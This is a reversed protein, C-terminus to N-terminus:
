QHFGWIPRLLKYLPSYEADTATVFSKAKYRKLIPRGARTGGPSLILEKIRQRTQADVRSGISFGRHPWIIKSEFLLALGAKVKAPRKLWWKAPVVAAVGEGRRLCKLAEPFSNIPIVVPVSAPNPFLDFMGLTMLNPSGISCVRKGALKRVAKIRSGQKVIISFNLQGPLKAVAVHHKKLIRWGIFQPGDFIIDYKDDLLAQSYEIFNAAMVLKVKRGLRKSLYDALPGYRQISVKLSQTPPTSFIIEDGAVSLSTFGLVCLLFVLKHIWNLTKLTCRM